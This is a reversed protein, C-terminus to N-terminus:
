FIVMHQFDPFRQPSPKEKDSVGHKVIVFIVFIVYENKIRKDCAISIGLSHM